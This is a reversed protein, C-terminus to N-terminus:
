ARKLKWEVIDGHDAGVDVSLKITEGSIKGKYNMKVENGQFSATIVFSIEDGDVKGEEITSKGLLESSTEGTLKTGDVKFVFTRELTQGQLDATGTWKGNIDAATAVVAFLATVVLLLFLQRKMGRVKCSERLFTL